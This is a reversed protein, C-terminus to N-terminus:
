MTLLVTLHEVSTLDSIIDMRTNMLAILSRFSSQSNFFLFLYHLQLKRLCVGHDLM